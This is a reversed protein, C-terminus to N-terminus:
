FLKKDEELVSSLVSAFHDGINKKEEGEEPLDHERMTEDNM